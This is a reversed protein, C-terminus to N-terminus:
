TYAGGILAWDDRNEQNAVVGKLPTYHCSRLSNAHENGDYEFRIEAPPQGFCIFSDGPVPVSLDDENTLQHVPECRPEPCCWPRKMADGGESDGVRSRRAGAARLRPLRAHLRPPLPDYGCGESPPKSKGETFYRGRSKTQWCASMGISCGCVFSVGISGLVRM